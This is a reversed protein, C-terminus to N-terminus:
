LLVDDRLPSIAVDCGAPDFRHEQADGLEYPTLLGERADVLM